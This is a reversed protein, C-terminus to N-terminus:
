RTNVTHERGRRGTKVASESEARRTQGQPLEHADLGPASELPVPKGARARAGPAKNLVRELLAGVVARKAETQVRSAQSCGSCALTGDKRGSVGGQHTHTSALVAGQVSQQSILAFVAIAAVTLVGRTVGVEVGGTSRGDDRRFDTQEARIAGAAGTEGEGGGRGGTTGGLGVSPRAIRVSSSTSSPPKHAHAYTRCYAQLSAPLAPNHHRAGKEPTPTCKARWAAARRATPPCPVLGSQMSQLSDLTRGFDLRGHRRRLVFFLGSCTDPRPPPATPQARVPIRSATLAEKYAGMWSVLVGGASFLSGM